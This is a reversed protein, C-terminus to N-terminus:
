GNRWPVQSKKIPSPIELGQDPMQHHESSRPQNSMSKSNQIESMSTALLTPQLSLGGPNSDTYCM